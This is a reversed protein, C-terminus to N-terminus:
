YKDKLRDIARTIYQNPETGEEEIKNQVAYAVSEPANLKRRVWKILPEIPVHHPETGFQVEDAYELNSGVYYIGEERGKQIQFSQRLRGTYVPAEEKINNVLENAIKLIFDDVNEKIEEDVDSIDIRMPM